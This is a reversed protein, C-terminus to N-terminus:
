KLGAERVLSDLEGLLPRLEAPESTAGDITTVTKSRAATQLTLKYTFRDCCANGEIYSDRWQFFGAQEARALLTTVASPAIRGEKGDRAV